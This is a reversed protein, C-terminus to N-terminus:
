EFALLTKFESRKFVFFLTVFLVIGNFIFIYPGINELKVNLNVMVDIVLGYIGIGLPISANAVTGIVGFIRGLMKSDTTKQIITEMNVVIIGVITGQLFIFLLTMYPNLIKGILVFLLASIFFNVVLFNYNKRGNPKIIGAVTFGSIIGVVFTGLIFGVWQNGESLSDSVLYTILLPMPGIFLHYIAIVTIFSFLGRNNQIYTLGEKLDKKVSNLEIKKTENEDFIKDELIFLESISSLIYSLGNLIFVIPGGVITFILGSMGQGLLVGSKKGTQYISNATHLKSEPVLNPILASAAPNLFSTFVGLLVSAVFLSVITYSDAMFKFYLAGGIGLLLIGSLADTIVIIKKKSFLDAVAGGLPSIIIEPLKSAIMVLGILGASYSEQKLWLIMVLDFLHTGFNSVFQGQWLLLFSRNFLKLESKM